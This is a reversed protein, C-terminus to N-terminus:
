RAEGDVYVWRGARRTFRSRERMSEVGGIGGAGGRSGTPRAGSSAPSRWSAIFEVLGEADDEGGGEVELIQLGCWDLSPDAYPPAPRTRPHWSRVLHDEDALVFATYRSRMLALASSAAGGQLIPACCAGFPAGSCCPCEDQPSPPTMMRALTARRIRGGM